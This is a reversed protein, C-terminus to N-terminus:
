PPTPASPPPPAVTAAANELSEAEKQPTLRWNRAWKEAAEPTDFLDGAMGELATLASDRVDENPHHLLDALLGASQPTAQQELGATAYDLTDPNASLLVDRIADVLAESLVPLDAVEDMLGTTREAAERAPLQLVQRFQPVLAAAKAVAAVQAPSAKGEVVLREAETIAEVHVKPATSRPDRPESRAPNIGARPSGPSTAKTAAPPPPEHGSPARDGRLVLWLAGALLVAGAGSWLAHRTNM